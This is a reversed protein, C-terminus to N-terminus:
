LRGAVIAAGVIRTASGLSGVTMASASTEVFYGSATGADIALLEITGAISCSGPIEFTLTVPVVCGANRTVTSGLMSAAFLRVSVSTTLEIVGFLRRAGPPM